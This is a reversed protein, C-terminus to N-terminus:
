NQARCELHLLSYWSIGIIGVFVLSYENTLGKLPGRVHQCNCLMAMNGMFGDRFGGIRFARIKLELKEYAYNDVRLIRM